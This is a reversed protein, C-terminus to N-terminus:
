AQGGYTEFLKDLQTKTVGIAKLVTADNLFDNGRYVRECLDWEDQMDENSAILAKVKKFDVGVSVLAKKFDLKTMNQMKYAKEKAEKEKAKYEDSKLYDEYFMFGDEIDGLCDVVKTEETTPNIITKGRNDAKLQWEENEFVVVTNAKKTPPELLTSNAPMLIVDKGTRKTAERDLESPIAGIYEKTKGDYLYVLM